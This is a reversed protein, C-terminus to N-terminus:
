KLKITQITSIGCNNHMLTDGHEKQVSTVVQRQSYHAMVTAQAATGVEGRTNSMIDLVGTSHSFPSVVARVVQFQINPEKSVLM